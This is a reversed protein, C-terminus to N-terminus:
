EREARYTEIFDADTVRLAGVGSKGRRPREREIAKVKTAM